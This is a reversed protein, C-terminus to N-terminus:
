RKGQSALCDKSQSCVGVNESEQDSKKKEGMALKGM